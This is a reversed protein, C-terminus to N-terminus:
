ADTVTAAERMKQAGGEKVREQRGAIEGVKKKTHTRGAGLEARVILPLAICNKTDSLPISHRWNRDFAKKCIALNM